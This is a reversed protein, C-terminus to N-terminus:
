NLSILSCAYAPLLHLFPRWNTGNIWAEVFMNVILSRFLNWGLAAIIFKLNWCNVQNIKKM